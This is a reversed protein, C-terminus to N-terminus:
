TSQMNRLKAPTIGMERKFYQIFHSCDNFGCAYCAETVSAGRMLMRRAEDLRIHMLYQYPSLELSERFLRSLYSSSISFHSAIASASQIDAFSTNIYNLIDTLLSNNAAVAGSTTEPIQILHSLLQYFFSILMLPDIDSTQMLIKKQTLTDYIDRPLTIRNKIYSSRHFLQVIREREPLHEILQPHMYFYYREYMPDKIHIGMHREGPAFLLVDGSGAEFLTTETLYKRYTRILVIIEYFEQVHFYPPSIHDNCCYQFYLQWESHLSPIPTLHVASPELPPTTHYSHHKHNAHPAGHLSTQVEM